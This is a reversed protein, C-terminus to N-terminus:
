EGGKGSKKGKEEAPEEEKKQEANEQELRANEAKLIEIEAKLAENEKKLNMHEGYSVTKGRGFAVTDGTEDVIDFGADQYAKKQEEKITYVKNGKVAKM